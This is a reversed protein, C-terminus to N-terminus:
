KNNGGRYIEISPFEHYNLTNQKISFHTDAMTETIMTEIINWYMYM